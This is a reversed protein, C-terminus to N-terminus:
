IRGTAAANDSVSATAAIGVACIRNFSRFQHHFSCYNGFVNEYVPEELSLLGMLLLSKQDANYWKISIVTSSFVFTRRCGPLSPPASNKSGKVMLSLATTGARAALRRFM